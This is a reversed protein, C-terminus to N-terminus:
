RLGAIRVRPKIANTCAAACTKMWTQKRLWATLAIFWNINLVAINM